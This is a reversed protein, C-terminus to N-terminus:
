DKINFWNRVVHTSLKGNCRKEWDWDEKAFIANVFWSEPENALAYGEIKIPRGIDYVNEEKCAFVFKNSKLDRVFLDQTLNNEYCRVGFKEQFKVVDGKWEDISKYDYKNNCFLVLKGNAEKFADEFFNIFLVLSINDQFEHM